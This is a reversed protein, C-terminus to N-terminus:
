RWASAVKGERLLSEVFGTLREQSRHDTDLFEVGTHFSKKEMMELPSEKTWAVKAKTFLSKPFTPIEIELELLTGQTLKEDLLLCAGLRSINESLSRRNAPKTKLLRYRVNLAVDVRVARRRERGDWCEELKGVPEVKKREKSEEVLIHILMLILGIIIGLLVILM